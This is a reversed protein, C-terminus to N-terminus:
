VRCKAQGQTGVAWSRTTVQSHSPLWHQEQPPSPGLWNETVAGHLSGPVPPPHAKLAGTDRGQPLFQLIVIGTRGLLESSLKPPVPTPGPNGDRGRTSGKWTLHFPTQIVGFLVAPPLSCFPILKTLRAADGSQGACQEWGTTEEDASCPNHKKLDEGM